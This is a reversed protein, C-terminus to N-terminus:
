TGIVIEHLVVGVGAEGLQGVFAGDINIKIWGSNPPSWCTHPKNIQHSRNRPIRALHVPQKDKSDESALPEKCVILSEWYSLLFGVSDAM